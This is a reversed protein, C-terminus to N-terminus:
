KVRIRGTMLRPLLNDRIQTLLRIEGTNNRFSEYIPKIVQDFEALIKQEPIIAAVNNMNNQNIKPQVAGTVIHQVNTQQLLLLIYETPIGDKGQLVHTHNNVWFKGWVYQLMPFGKDTVVTGDEGMLVYIGDFLYDDVYDVISAAGYYPYEGRRQDRERSSLPVRKSDFNVIVDGLTGRRWGEPLGNIFKVKEYGPFGFDVFWKKFIAQAIAELTKNMRRNLEIKDDLDSLIKAIARQENVEKPAFFVYEKIRNPSTHKVTSGSASNVIFQQYKKDRMLWYLFERDVRKDKFTVLGLRQNHLYKKGDGGPVKAPYGLTDGKKSLDTMTIIVDNEKLVYDQPCEGKYYKFKDGKFGGGIRFNGPTLLIDDTPEDSFFEGKFAFGHKIDISNKLDFSVWGEPIESLETQKLRTKAM